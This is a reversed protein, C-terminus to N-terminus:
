DVEDLSPMYLEIKTSAENKETNQLKEEHKRRQDAENQNLLDRVFKESFNISENGVYRYKIDQERNFLHLQNYNIPKQKMSKVFKKFTKELNDSAILNSTIAFCMSLNLVIKKLM